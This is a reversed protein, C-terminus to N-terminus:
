AVAEALWNKSDRESRFGVRQAAVQGNKFVLLAPVSMIRYQAALQPHEEVNVKGIKVRGAYETAVEDLVPALSLCPACWRAWFDVVVPVPSKLVEDAFNGETLAVVNSAAM